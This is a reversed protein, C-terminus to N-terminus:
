FLSVVKPLFDQKRLDSTTQRPPTLLTSSPRTSLFSKGGSRSGQVSAEARPLATCPRTYSPIPHMGSSPVADSIQLAARRTTLGATPLSKSGREQPPFSLRAVRLHRVPPPRPLPPGQAAAFSMETCGSLASRAGHGTCERWPARDPSLPRPTRRTNFLM